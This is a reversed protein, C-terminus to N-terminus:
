DSDRDTQRMIASALVVVMMLALALMLASGPDGQRLKQGVLFGPVSVLAVLTSAAIPTRLM